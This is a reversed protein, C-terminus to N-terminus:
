TDSYQLRQIHTTQKTTPDIDALVGHLQPNGSAVQNRSPLNTLFRQIIINKDVGIVSDQPGTMGLDTIYGTGGPLIQEDATQIHTHTGVVLSVRGDLYHGLARKEATTEAHIETIILDTADQLEHLLKDAYRFPCPCLNTKNMFVRGFLTFVALKTDEKQLILYPAGPPNDPFNAPRCIYPMGDIDNLLSAQDWVHDGLTIAHVGEKIFEEAISKTIGSGSAANEGQVIIFDPHHEEKLQPLTHRLIARGPKGFIDGIFAVRIM